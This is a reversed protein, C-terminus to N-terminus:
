KEGPVTPTKDASQKEVARKEEEEFERTVEATLDFAAKRFARIGKGLNRAMQPLKGPGFAILAVILILVIEMAGMGLFDM